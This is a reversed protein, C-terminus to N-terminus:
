IQVAAFKKGPQLIPLLHTPEIKFNNSPQHVKLTTNSVYPMQCRNVEVYSVLTSTIELRTEVQDKHPKLVFNIWYMELSQHNLKM